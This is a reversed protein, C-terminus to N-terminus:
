STTVIVTAVGIRGHHEPRDGCIPGSRTSPMPGYLIIEHPGPSTRRPVTMTLIVKVPSPDAPNIVALPRYPVRGGDFRLEEAGCMGRMRTAVVYLNAGARAVAPAMFASESVATRIVAPASPTAASPSSPRTTLGSGGQAYLALGALGILAGTGAFARLRATSTAARSRRRAASTDANTRLGPEGLDISVDPRDNDNM